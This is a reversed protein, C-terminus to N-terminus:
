AEKSGTSVFITGEKDKLYDVASAISDVIKVGSYSSEDRTVRIYEAGTNKCAESVHKTINSAYPHTADIVIDFGSEKILKSIGEIGGCSGVSVNVDSTNLAAGYETAVKVLVDVGNETLWQALARGEETGSFLLVKM